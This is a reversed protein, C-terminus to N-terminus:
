DEDSLKLEIEERLMQEAEEETPEAELDRYQRSLSDEELGYRLAEIASGFDEMLEQIRAEVKPKVGQRIQKEEDAKAQGLIRRKETMLSKGFEDSDLGRAHLHQDALDEDESAEEALADLLHALRDTRDQESM